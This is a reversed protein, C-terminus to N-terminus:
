PRDKTHASVGKRWVYLRIQTLGREVCQIADGIAFWFKQEMHTNRERMVTPTTQAVLPIPGFFSIAHLWGTEKRLSTVREPIPCVDWGSTSGM